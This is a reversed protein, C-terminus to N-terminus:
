ETCKSLDLPIQPIEFKGDPNAIEDLIPGLAQTSYSFAAEIIAADRCKIKSSKAIRDMVISTVPVVYLDYIGKVEAAADSGEPWKDALVKCDSLDVSVKPLVPTELAAGLTAESAASLTAVVIEMVVCGPYSGAALVQAKALEALTAGAELAMTAVSLKDEPTLTGKTPLCGTLGVGIALAIGFNAYKNGDM